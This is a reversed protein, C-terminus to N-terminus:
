SYSSKKRKLLFTHICRPIKKAKIIWYWFFFMKFFLNHFLHIIKFFLLWIFLILKIISSCKTDCNVQKKGSHRDMLLSIREIYNSKNYMISFSNRLNPLNGRFYKKEIRLSVPSLM